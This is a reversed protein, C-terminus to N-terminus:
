YQMEGNVSVLMAHMSGTERVVNDIEEPLVYGNGSLAGWVEVIDGVEAEFRGYQIPMVYGAENRVLWVDPDGVNNEITSFAIIEGKFYYKMGTFDNGGKTVLSRGPGAPYKEANEECIEQFSKEKGGSIEQEIAEQAVNEDETSNNNGATENNQGCGILLLMILALVVCLVYIKRRKGKM